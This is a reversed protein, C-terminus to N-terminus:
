QNKSNKKKKKKKTEIDNLEARIKIIGEKQGSQAKNTTMERTRKSTPNTQKSSIKETKKPYTQIAIFKGRLVAKETDWLNQNKTHENENTELCKKIEKEIENNVRWEACGLAQWSHQTPDRFGKAPVVKQEEQM